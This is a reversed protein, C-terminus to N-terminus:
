LDIHSPSPSNPPNTRDSADVVLRVRQGEQAEKPLASLPWNVITGSVEIVAFDGEIRDIIAPPHHKM